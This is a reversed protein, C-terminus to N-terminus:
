RDRQREKDGHRWREIKTVRQRGMERVKWSEPDRKRRTHTHKTKREGHGESEKETHRKHTEKERETRDL